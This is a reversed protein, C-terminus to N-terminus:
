TQNIKKNRSQKTTSRAGRLSPLSHNAISVQKECTHCILLFPNSRWLRSAIVSSPTMKHKKEM